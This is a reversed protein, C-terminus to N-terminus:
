GAQEAAVEFVHYGWAPLDLYLGSSILDNGDRDYCAPGMLDQFRVSRGALDTFPMRVYCQSQHSAYNVVVMLREGSAAQWASALFCDWTWNDDWAPKCELLQWEGERVVSRRLVSLLQDYFLSLAENVPELPARVLHPSIRKRRGESQGQHFFRL